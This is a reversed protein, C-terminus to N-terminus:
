ATNGLWTASFSAQDFADSAAGRIVYASGGVPNIAATLYDGATLKMVSSNVGFVASSSNAAFGAVSTSTASAEANKAFLFTAATVTDASNLYARLSVLYIGTTGIVIRTPVGASWMGDTDYEESQWAIVAGSTYPNINSTLIARVMPPVTHNNVTTLLNNHTTAALLDGTAVATLNTFVKAM